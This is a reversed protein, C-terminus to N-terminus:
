QDTSIEQFLQQLKELDSKVDVLIVDQAFHSYDKKALLDSMLELRHLTNKIEHLTKDSM